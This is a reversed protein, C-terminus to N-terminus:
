LVSPPHDNMLDLRLGVLGVGHAMTGVSDTVERAGWSFLINPPSLYHQNHTCNSMKHGVHCEHTSNVSLSCNVFHLRIVDTFKILLEVIIHITFRM